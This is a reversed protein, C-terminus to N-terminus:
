YKKLNKQLEFEHTYVKSTTYKKYDLIMARINRSYYYLEDDNKSSMKESWIDISTEFLDRLKGLKKQELSAKFVDSAFVVRRGDLTNIIPLNINGSIISRTEVDSIPITFSVTSSLIENELFDRMFKKDKSSFLLKRAKDVESVRGDYHNSTIYIPENDNFILPLEQKTGDYKSVTLHFTSDTLKGDFIPRISSWCASDYALDDYNYFTSICSDVYSLSGSLLTVSGNSSTYTLVAKM